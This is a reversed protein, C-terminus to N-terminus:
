RIKEQQKEKEQVGEVFLCRTKAISRCLTLGQLSRGSLGM